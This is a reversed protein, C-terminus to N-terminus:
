RRKGCRRKRRHRKKCTKKKVPPNASPQPIPGGAPPPPFPVTGEFAGLDCGSGPRSVGRQITGPALGDTITMGDVRVAGDGTIDIARDRLGEPRRVQTV